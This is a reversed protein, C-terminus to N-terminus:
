THIKDNFLLETMVYVRRLKKNRGWKEMFFYRERMVAPVIQAVRMGRAEAAPL